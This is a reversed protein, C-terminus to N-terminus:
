SEKIKEQDIAAKIEKWFRPEPIKGSVVDDYHLRAWEKLTILPAGCIKCRPVDKEKRRKRKYRSM